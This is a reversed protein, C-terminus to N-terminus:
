SAFLQVVKVLLQWVGYGFPVAVWLWAFVTLALRRPEFREPMASEGSEPM